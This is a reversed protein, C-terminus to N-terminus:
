LLSGDGQADNPEAELHNLRGGWASLWWWTAEQLSFRTMMMHMGKNVISENLDTAKLQRGLPSRTCWKCWVYFESFLVKVTTITTKNRNKHWWNYNPWKKTRPITLDQPPQAFPLSYKLIKGFKHLVVDTITNFVSSLWARIDAAPRALYWSM